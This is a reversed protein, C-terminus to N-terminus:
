IKLEVGAKELDEKSMQSLEERMDPHLTIDTKDKSRLDIDSKPTLSFCCRRYSPKGNNLVIQGALAHTKPYRNIYKRTLSEVTNKGEKVYFKEVETLIQEPHDAKITYLCAGKKQAKQLVNTIQNAESGKPVDIFTLKTTVFSNQIGLEENSFLSDNLNNSRSNEIIQRIEASDVKENYPNEKVQTCVITGVEKQLIKVGTELSQQM